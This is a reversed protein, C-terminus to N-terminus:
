PIDIKNESSEPKSIRPISIIKTSVRFTGKFFLLFFFFVENTKHLKKDKAKIQSPPMRIKNVEDQM